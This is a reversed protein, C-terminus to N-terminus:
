ESKSKPTPKKTAIKVAPGKAPIKKPAANATSPAKESDNKIQKSPENAPQPKAVINNVTSKVARVKIGEAIELSIESDNIVKDVTGLIGGATIVRDGKRLEKIMAQHAQAKKQQPRIVIFYFIALVSGIMLFQGLMPSDAFGGDAFLGQTLIFLIFLIKM